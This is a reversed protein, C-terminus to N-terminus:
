KFKLLSFNLLFKTFLNGKRLFSTVFKSNSPLPAPFKINSPGDESDSSLVEETDSLQVTDQSSTLNIKFNLINISYQSILNNLICM